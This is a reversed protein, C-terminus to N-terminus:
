RVIQIKELSQGESTLIELFYFGEGLENVDLLYNGEAQFDKQVSKVTAGLMNMFRFQVAAGSLQRPIFVTIMSNAPNPYINVQIKSNSENLGSPTNCATSNRQAIRMPSNSLVTVIRSKQDASFMNLSFDNCYDMYNMFMDGNVNSCTVHPHVPNGFNAELQVPTDNCFDNGCNADGWVHRLGLWHGIEHTATRGKNYSQDLLGVRGCSKYWIVVGDSTTTGFNGSLGSLGSSTPFTAYGLLDNGFQDTFDPVVWINLYNSTNWITAPKITANIYTNVFPPTTWGASILNIRDIGTTANGNPDTQALCFNVECDVAFPKFIAPTKFTDPNLRRFDENLVDIQSQIQAVSLNYSVGVNTGTHIVHFVVPINYVTVAGKNAAKQDEMQRILPQLWEEYRDDMTGTGCVKGPHKHGNISNSPLNAQQGSVQLAFTGAAVLTLLIQKM